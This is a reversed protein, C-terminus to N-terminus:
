MLQRSSTIYRWSSRPQPLGGASHGHRLGRCPVKGDLAPCSGWCVDWTGDAGEHECAVVHPCGHADKEATLGGGGGAAWGRAGWSGVLLQLDRSRLVAVNKEECLQAYRMAMMYNEDKLRLLEVSNSDWEERLRQCREQVKLLEKLQQELRVQEQELAQNKVQLQHEKLLHEKRQARVKKVEMMLFQTLGEPGEEDPSLCLLVQEQRSFCPCDWYVSKGLARNEVLFHCTRKCTQLGQQGLSIAGCDTM